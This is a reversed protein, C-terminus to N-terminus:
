GFRRCAGYKSFAGVRINGSQLLVSIIEPLFEDYKVELIVDGDTANVESVDDSTFDRSFLSTKIQSDFTVRVNGAGFTYAERRYSVLVKPRLQQLTMKVYLERILPEPSELMAVNPGSLINEFEEKTIVASYKRCLGRDKVKKELTIYSFDDNYYRIRFKERLPVGNIKESLAKDKYNDFYISRIIYGGDGNSHVDPRMVASLKKKLGIRDSETISYKLEHRCNM